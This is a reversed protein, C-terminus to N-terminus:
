PASEIASSQPESVHISPVGERTVSVGRHLMVQWQGCTLFVASGVRQAGLRVHSRISASNYGAIRSATHTFGSERLAAGALQWLVAFARTARFKPAIYIDYDWIVTARPRPAFTCRVEDENYARDQFWAYGAFEEGIQLVFCRSGQKLRQRVVQRSVPLPLSEFDQPLPIVRMNQPVRVKLDGLPQVFFLYRRVHVIGGSLKSLVRDSLYALASPVGLEAFVGLM